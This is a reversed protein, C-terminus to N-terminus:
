RHILSLPFGTAHRSDHAVDHMGGAQSFGAVFILGIGLVAAFVISAIETQAKADAHGITNTTM